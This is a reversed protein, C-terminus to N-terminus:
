RDLPGSSASTTEYHNLTLLKIRVKLSGLWIGLLIWGAVAPYFVLKMRGDMDYNSFAPNGGNGPHLSDYVRPLVMLLVMMMMYAFVSYVASLKGRKIEDEVSGRLILYAFYILMTVAAGNLKVDNTWWAGWTYRAWLSGTVTGLIGFIVGAEAYQSAIVDHRLEGKRLYLLSYVLSVTYLTMMTFWMPVHFYLNRITENLIFRAPVEGYFGMLLSYSLLVVCTIKWWAGKM